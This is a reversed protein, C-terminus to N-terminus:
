DPLADMLIGFMGFSVSFSRIALTVASACLRKSRKLSPPSSISTVTLWSGLTM